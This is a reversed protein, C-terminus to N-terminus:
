AGDREGPPRTRHFISNRTVRADLLDTEAVPRAHLTAVTEGEEDTEFRLELVAAGRRPRPARTLLRGGVLTSLGQALASPAPLPPPTLVTSPLPPLPPTLPPFPALPSPPTLPPPPHLPPLRWPVHAELGARCLPCCAPRILKWLCALCTSHGCPFRAAISRDLAEFCVPCELM